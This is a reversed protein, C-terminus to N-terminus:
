ADPAVEFLQLLELSVLETAAEELMHDFAALECATLLLHVGRSPLSIVVQRLDQEPYLTTGAMKSRVNQRLTEFDHAHLTFLTNGFACQLSQCDGCRVLYGDGGFYLQQFECM